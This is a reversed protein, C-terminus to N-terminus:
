YETDMETIIWGGAEKTLTRKVTAGGMATGVHIPYVLATEGDITIKLDDLIVEMDELYGMDKADLLFEKTADKDGWSIGPCVVFKTEASERDGYAGLQEPGM